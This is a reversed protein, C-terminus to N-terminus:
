YRLETVIHITHYMSICYWIILRHMQRNLPLRCQSFFLSFSFFLLQYFLHFFTCVWRNKNINFDKILRCMVALILYTPSPILFNHRYTLLYTPGESYCVINVNSVSSSGINTCLSIISILISNTHSILYTGFM